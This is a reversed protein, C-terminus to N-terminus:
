HLSTQSRHIEIQYKTDREFSNHLIINYTSNNNCSTGGVLMTRVAPIWTGVTNRIFTIGDISEACLSAFKVFWISASISRETPPTLKVKNRSVAKGRKLHQNLLKPHVFDIEM